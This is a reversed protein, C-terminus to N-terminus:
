PSRPNTCGFLGHFSMRNVIGSTLNQELDVTQHLIPCTVRSRVFGRKEDDVDKKIMRSVCLM